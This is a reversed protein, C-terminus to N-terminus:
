ATAHGSRVPQLPRGAPEHVRSHTPAFGSDRAWRNVMSVLASAAASDHSPIHTLTPLLDISLGPVTALREFSQGYLKRFYTLGADNESFAMLVKVGRRVLQGVREEFRDPMTADKNHGSEDILKQESIRAARRLLAMGLLRANKLHYGFNAKGALLQKWSAPSMLRKAYSERITLAPSIHPNSLVLGIVRPDELAVRFAISGRGCNGMCIFRQLGRQERLYEIAEKFNRVGRENLAAIWDASEERERIQLTVIGFSALARAVRLEAVGMGAIVAGITAGHPPDTIAGILRNNSGFDFVKCRRVTSM